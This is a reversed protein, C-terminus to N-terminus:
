GLRKLRVRYLVTGTMMLITSFFGKTAVNVVEYVVTQGDVVEFSEEKNYVGNTARITHHGPTLPVDRSEGYGLRIKEADDVIVFLDRIKIDDPSNRSVSLTGNAM